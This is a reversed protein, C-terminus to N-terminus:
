LTAGSISDALWPTSIILERWARRAVETRRIGLAAFRKNCIPNGEDMALLGNGAGVLGRATDILEPVTM